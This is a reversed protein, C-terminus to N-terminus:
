DHIPFEIPLEFPNLNTFTPKIMCTENNLSRFKTVLYGRFRSLEILVQKILRFM